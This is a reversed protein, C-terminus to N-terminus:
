RRRKQRPGAGLLGTPAFLGPFTLAHAITLLATFLYGSALVLLARSRFFRLQGFLLAATTLDNIVLAAEYAPIFAGIPALRVGAFPVAALFALASIAIVVGAARREGRGARMTM